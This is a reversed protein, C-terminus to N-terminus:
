KKLIKWIINRVVYYSWHLTNPVTGRIMFNIGLIHLNCTNFDNMEGRPKGNCKNM